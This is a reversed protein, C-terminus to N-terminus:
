LYKKSLKVYHNATERNNDIEVSTLKRMFRAPSGGWLEGSLVRKGPTVLSGAAIMSDSEIEVNDMLIAGMGIFAHNKINCAHILARHGITVFDGISTSGGGSRSVHIITGDQINTSNGISICNVDGRIVCKFWVSSNDRIKVKGIIKCDSSVFVNKEIEPLFGDFSYINVNSNKLRM